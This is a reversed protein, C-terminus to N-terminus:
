KGGGGTEMSEEKIPKKNPQEAALALELEADEQQLREIDKLAALHALKQKKDQVRQRLVALRVLPHALEEAPVETKAELKVEAATQYNLGAAAAGAGSSPPSSHSGGRNLGSLSM